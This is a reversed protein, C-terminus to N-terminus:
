PPCGSGPTVCNALAELKAVEVRREAKHRPDGHVCFLQIVMRFPRIVPIHYFDNQRGVITIAQRFTIVLQSSKDFFRGSDIWSCGGMFKDALALEVRHATDGHSDHVCCSGERATLLIGDRGTWAADGFCM